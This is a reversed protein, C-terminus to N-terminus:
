SMDTKKEYFVLRIEEVGFSRLVYEDTWHAEDFFTGPDICIPDGNIHHLPGLTNRLTGVLRIRIENVGSKLLDTIDIRYPRFAIIGAELGNVYVVALAARLDELELFIRKGEKPTLEIVKVLDISGAYFPYGKGCLDGLQVEQPEKTLRSKGGAIAVVAFDGLIYIGEVETELGVAGKLEITNLGRRVLGSIDIMDFNKDLWYEETPSVRVGNVSIDYTDAREVVLLTKGRIEEDSEFEFRLTFSEGIGSDVIKRHAKWVPVIDSWPGENIRYRCYDLVLINPDLREVKWPGLLEIESCKVLRGIKSRRHAHTPHFMLLISGVPQLAVKVWTRRERTSHDIEEVSGNIPNWVEVTWTGILGVNVDVREERDINVLFLVMEEDVKRLQYLVSGKPDGEILIRPFIYDKIKEISKKELNLVVSREVLEKIERSETGDIMTPTPTIFILVGGGDTFKKLLEVTSKMLTISPPVVITGYKARGIRIRNGEVSAHQSMIIEDGLEFDLHLELLMRLLKHFREDLERVKRENLPSYSAWASSIPHIVLIDVIRIGQSLAYSLRSFYDEILRNYKWWPQSWHLILGYDRKRRGRLSYPVLHHNLLNVGMVYLFDGIWKRDEFTPYFGTCGYTECLVREKGLQNAVSAVQKVTLLGRWIRMCLHDIGPIHMHEYHPMAAGINTLQSLLTDEALYHGTFKLKHKTCWEYIQKSFAEVFMLTVTKWFDYRTKSYNGINFFLEPLREIIDYGNIRKFYEPLNDTWPITALPLRMGRPPIPHSRRRPRNSLFNPEDTFVGPITSGLDEHFRLYPEYAVKIFERVTDRNLLDVYSFGSFWENGVSASYKLFTLYLCGRKATEYEVRKYTLPLETKPDITCRFVAVVDEGRFPMTDPIMILAKARYKSSLAPVIGGAFGSPWRLEDYIWVTFNYKKGEKLASRFAEFWDESLFPTVLGERAHFFVGGYGADYLLRVQRKIEESKLIGNISWFPVGRYETPPNKFLDRNLGM